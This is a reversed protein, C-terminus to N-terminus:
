LSYCGYCYQTDKYTGNLPLYYTFFAVFFSIPLPPRATLFTINRVCIWRHVKKQLKKKNRRPKEHLESLIVSLLLFLGDLFSGVM